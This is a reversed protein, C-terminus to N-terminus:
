RERYEGMFVSFLSSESCEENLLAQLLGRESKLKINKGTAKEILRLGEPQSVLEFERGELKLSTRSHPPYDQWRGVQVSRPQDSPKEFKKKGPFISSFFERRSPARM